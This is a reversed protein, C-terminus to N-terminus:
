GIILYAIAVMLVILKMDFYINGPVDQLNERFSGPLIAGVKHQVTSSTGLAVLVIAIYGIALRYPALILISNAGYFVLAGVIVSAAITFFSAVLASARDDKHRAIEYIHVLIAVVIAINGILRAEAWTTKILVGALFISVSVPSADWNGGSAAAFGSGILFTVGVTRFIVTTWFQVDNAVCGQELFQCAQIAKLTIADALSYIVLCIILAKKVALFDKPENRDATESKFNSILLWILTILIIWGLWNAMLDSVVKPTNRVAFHVVGASFLGRLSTMANTLPTINSSTSLTPLKSLGFFVAGIGIVLVIVIVAWRVADPLSEQPKPDEKAFRQRLNQFLTKVGGFRASPSTKVTGLSELYREEAAKAGPPQYSVSQDSM